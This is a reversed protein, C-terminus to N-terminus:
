GRVWFDGDLHHIKKKGEGKLLLYFHVGVQDGGEAGWVGLLDNNVQAQSVPLLLRNGLEEPKENGEM